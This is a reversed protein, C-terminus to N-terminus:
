YAKKKAGAKRTGSGRNHQVESLVKTKTSRGYNETDGSNLREQIDFTRSGKTVTNERRGGKGLTTIRTTNRRELPNVRSQSYTTITNGVKKSRQAGTSVRKGDRGRDNVPYPVYENSSAKTKGKPKPQSKRAPAPSKKGMLIKGKPM